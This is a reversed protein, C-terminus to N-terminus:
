PQQEATQVAFPRLGDTAIRLVRAPQAQDQGGSVVDVAQAGIIPEPGLQIAVNAGARTGAELWRTPLAGPPLGEFRFGDITPRWFVATGSARSQARASEFLVALRQAERELATQSTDRLSLSVGATAVAIIAVVVLLELLTFGANRVKQTLCHPNKLPVAVMRQPACKSLEPRGSNRATHTCRGGRRAAGLLALGRPPCRVVRLPSRPPEVESGAALIRM